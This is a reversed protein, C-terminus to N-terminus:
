GMWNVCTLRTENTYWLMVIRLFPHFSLLKRIRFAPLLWGVHGIGDHLANGTEITLLIVTNGTTPDVKPYYMQLHNRFNWCSIEVPLFLFLVRSHVCCSPEILLFFPNLSLFPFSCVPLLIFVRPWLLEFFLYHLPIVQLSSGLLEASVHTCFVALSSSTM